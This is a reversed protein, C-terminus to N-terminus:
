TSEGALRMPGRKAPRLGMKDAYFERAKDMWANPDGDIRLSPGFGTTKSEGDVFGMVVPVDLADAIRWFGSKWLKAKGRTGEPTIVLLARENNRYHAEVSAVLANPKSRDVPVGGWSRMLVGLPGKFLADKGLFGVDLKFHKAVALFILFDWNSTHPAAIIIAKPESPAEGIFKWGRLLLYRYAIWSMPLLYHTTGLVPTRVDSYAPLRVDGIIAFSRM